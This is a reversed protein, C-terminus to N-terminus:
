GFIDEGSATFDSLAALAAADPDDAIHIQYGLRDRTTAAQWRGDQARYLTFGQLGSSAAERLLDAIM